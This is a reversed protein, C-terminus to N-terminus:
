MFENRSIQENGHSRRRQSTVQFSFLLSFNYQAVFQATQSAHNRVWEHVSCKAVPSTLPPVSFRWFSQLIFSFSFLSCLLFSFTYQIPNRVRFSVVWIIRPYNLSVNLHVTVYQQTMYPQSQPLPFSKYLLSWLRLCLWSERESRLVFCIHWGRLWLSWHTM